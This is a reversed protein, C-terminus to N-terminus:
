DGISGLRYAMDQLWQGADPLLLAVAFLVLFTAILARVVARWQTTNM